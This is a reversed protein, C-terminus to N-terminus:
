RDHDSLRRPRARRHAVTGDPMSMRMRETACFVSAYFDIAAAARDISLHASVRRYSNPIPKVDPM